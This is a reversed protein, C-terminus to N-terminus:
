NPRHYQENMCSVKSALKKIMKPIRDRTVYSDGLSSISHYKWIEELTQTSIESLKNGMKCFLFGTDFNKKIKKKWLYFIWNFRDFYM